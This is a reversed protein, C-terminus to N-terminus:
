SNHPPVSPLEHKLSSSQNLRCKPFAAGVSQNPLIRDGNFAMLKQSCSNTLAFLTRVCFPLAYNASEPNSHLIELWIYRACCTPNGAEIFAVGADATKGVQGLVVYAAGLRGNGRLSPIRHANSVSTYVRRSERESATADLQM